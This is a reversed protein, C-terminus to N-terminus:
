KWLARSSFESVKSEGYQYICCFGLSFSGIDHCLVCLCLASCLHVTKNVQAGHLM